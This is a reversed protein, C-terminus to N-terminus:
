RYKCFYKQGFCSSLFGYLGLLYSLIMLNWVVCFLSLIDMLDFPNGEMYNVVIQCIRMVSGVLFYPIVLSPVMKKITGLVDGKKFFFGSLIFFLPMHFSYILSRLPSPASEVHGVVVLLITIGKAVDIYEIREKM